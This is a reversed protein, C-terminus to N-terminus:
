DTETLTVTTYVDEVDEIETLADILGVLQQAQDAEVSLPLKSIFGQPTREFLYSVSGPSGLSGGSKSLTFRIDASTRNPNDTVAQILLGVGGPGFGEYLIEQLLAGSASKGLGREIAIAVKNKPLNVARAKDLASRLTSNFQPDGSKGEKVAMRIQKTVQAFDKSKQADVAGKRNKINNWKSHGSM